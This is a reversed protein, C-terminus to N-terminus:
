EAGGGETIEDPVVQITVANLVRPLGPEVADAHIHLVRAPGDDRRGGGAHPRGTLVAEVLEASQAVAGVGHLDVRACKGQAERRGRAQGPIIPRDVAVAARRAHRQRRRAGGLLRDVEAVIRRADPDDTVEDPVIQVPVPELVGPLGAEVPDADVEGVVRLRDERLRGGGDAGVADVARILEGPEAGLAVRDDDVLARRGEGPQCRRRGTGTIRREVAVHVGGGDGQGRLRARILGDVEAVDRGARPLDAIEDPVIDVPVADLIGALWSKGTDAQIEPIRRVIAEDGDECHRPVVAGVAEGAETRSGIGHFGHPGRIEFDRGGRGRAACPRRVAIPTGRRDGQGSVGARILSDVDAEPLGAVAGDAVEDPVVQVAVARWSAFSGPSAFTVTRSFLPVPVTRLVATVL